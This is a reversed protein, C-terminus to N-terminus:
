PHAGSQLLLTVVAGRGPKTDVSLQAGILRARYRLTRLGLGRRERSWADFGCGEDCICIRLRHEDDQEVRVHVDQSGSHKAANHVAERVIFFIQNADFDDVVELRELGTAHCRIGFTAGTQEVFDEIARELTNADVDVPNLGRGIARLQRRADAISKVLTQAREADSDGRDRLKRELSRALMGVGTLLQGVSDHLAAGLRRREAQAIRALAREFEEREIVRGLQAGMQQAASLLETERCRPERSYFELAGAVRDQVLIPFALGCVLGVRSAAEARGPLLSEGMPEDAWQARGTTVVRGILGQGPEISARTTAQVFPGVDTGPECWWLGTDLPRGDTESPCLYAHGLPWGVGACFCRMAELLGESVSDASNAIEAFRQMLRICRLQVIVANALADSVGRHGEAPARMAGDPIESGSDTERAQRDTRKPTM